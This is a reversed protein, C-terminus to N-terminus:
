DLRLTTRRKKSWVLQLVADRTEDDLNELVLVSSTADELHQHPPVCSLAQSIGPAPLNMDRYQVTTNPPTTMQIDAPLSPANSSSDNVLYSVCEQPLTTDVGSPHNLSSALIGGDLFDCTVDQWAFQLDSSELAEDFHSHDVNEARSPAILTNSAGM